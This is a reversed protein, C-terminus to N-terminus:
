DHKGGCNRGATHVSANTNGRVASGITSVALGGSRSPRLAIKGDNRFVMITETVWTTEALDSLTM